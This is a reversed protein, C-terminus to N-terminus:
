NVFYDYAIEACDERSEYSDKSCREYGQAFVLAAERADTISLFEEYSYKPHFTKIEYEINDRLFNCQEELSAGVVKPFYKKKWQCIGYYEDTEITPQLDLTNGGVEVMINGIIGASVYDSYGLEKLYDWIYQADEYEITEEQPEELYAEPITRKEKLRYERYLGIGEAHANYAAPSATCAFCIIIIELIILIKKM